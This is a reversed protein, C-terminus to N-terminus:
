RAPSDDALDVHDAALAGGLDAVRRTAVAEHACGDGPVELDIRAPRRGSPRPFTDRFIWLSAARGRRVTLQVVTRERGDWV